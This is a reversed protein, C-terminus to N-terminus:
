FYVLRRPLRSTLVSWLSSTDTEVISTLTLESSEKNRSTVSPTSRTEKSRESPEAPPTTIV